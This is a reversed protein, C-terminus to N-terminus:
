FIESGDQLYFHGSVIVVAKRDKSVCGIRM